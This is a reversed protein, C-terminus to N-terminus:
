RVHLRIKTGVHHNTEVAKEIMKESERLKEAIHIRCRIGRTTAVDWNWPFTPHCPGFRYTCNFRSPCWMTNTLPTPQRDGKAKSIAVRSLPLLNFKRSFTHHFLRQTSGKEQHLACLRRIYRRHHVNRVHVIYPHVNELM